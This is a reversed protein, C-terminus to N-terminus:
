ETSAFAVRAALQGEHYVLGSLTSRVVVGVRHSSVQEVADGGRQQQILLHVREGLQLLPHM